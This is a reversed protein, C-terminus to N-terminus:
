QTDSPNFLANLEEPSLQYEIRELPKPRMTQGPMTKPKGTGRLAWQLAQRMDEETRCVLFQGHWIAQRLPYPYDRGAPDLAICLVNPRKALFAFFSGNETMFESATGAAIVPLDAPIASLIGVAEYLHECPECVGELDEYVPSLASRLLSDPGDIILIKGIEPPQM